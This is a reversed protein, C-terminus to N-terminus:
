FPTTEGALAKISEDSVQALIDRMIKYAINPDTVLTVYRDFQENWERYAVPTHLEKVLRTREKPNEAREKAEVDILGFHCKRGKDGKSLLFNVRRGVEELTPM